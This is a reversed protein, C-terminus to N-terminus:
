LEGRNFEKIVIQDSNLKKAITECVIRPNIAQGCTFVDIAVFQYEPWTHIAIHSEALVIVGSIGIPDFKHFKNDVVTLNASKCSDMLTTKIFNMDDIDCDKCNKIDIIAHKGLIM